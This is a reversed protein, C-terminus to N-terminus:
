KHLLLRFQDASDTEKAEAKKDWQSMFAPIQKWEAWLANTLDVSIIPSFARSETPLKLKDLFSFFNLFLGFQSPLQFPKEM